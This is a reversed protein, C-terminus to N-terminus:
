LMLHEDDPLYYHQLLPLRWEAKAVHSVVWVEM